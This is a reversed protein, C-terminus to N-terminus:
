FPFHFYSFSSKSILQNFYNAAMRMKNMLVFALQFQLLPFICTYLSNILLFICLKYALRTLHPVFSNNRTKHLCTDSWINGWYCCIMINNCILYFLQYQDNYHYSVDLLTRKLNELWFSAYNRYFKFSILKLSSAILSPHWSTQM